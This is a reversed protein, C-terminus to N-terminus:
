AMSIIRLNMWPVQFRLRVKILRGVEKGDRQRLLLIPLRYIIPPSLYESTSEPYTSIWACTSQTTIRRFTLCRRTVRVSVWCVVWVWHLGIPINIWFGGAIISPHISCLLATTVSSYKRSNFRLECLERSVVRGLKRRRLEFNIWLIKIKNWILPLLFFLLLLPFRLLPIIIILIRGWDTRQEALVRHRFSENRLVTRCLEIKIKPPHLLLRVSICVWM